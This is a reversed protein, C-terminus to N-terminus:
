PAPATAAASERVARRVLDHRFRHGYGAAQLIGQETAWSLFTTLNRPLSGARRLRLRDLSHLLTFAGGNGLALVLGLVGGLLAGVLLAAGTHSLLWLGFALALAIRSGSILWTIFSARIPDAWKLSEYEPRDAQGADFLGLLAFGVAGIVALNTDWVFTLLGGFVVTSFALSIAGKTGPLGLRAPVPRCDIPPRWIFFVMAALLGLLSPVAAVAAAGLISARVWALVRTPAGITVNEVRFIDGNPSDDDLQSEIWVLWDFCDSPDFGKTNVNSLSFDLHAAAIAREVAAEDRCSLLYKPDVGSEAVFSLM